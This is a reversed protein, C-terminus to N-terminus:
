LGAAASERRQAFATLLDRREELVVQLLKSVLLAFPADRQAVFCELVREKVGPWPVDSLERVFHLAHDREGLGIRRDRRCQQGGLYARRPPRERNGLRGGLGLNTETEVLGQRGGNVGEFLHEDAVGQFPRVTPDLFGRPDEADRSFPKEQLAPPPAQLLCRLDLAISGLVRLSLSRSLM